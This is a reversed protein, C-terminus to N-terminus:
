SICINSLLISKLSKRHPEAKPRLSPRMQVAFDHYSLDFVPAAAVQAVVAAAAEAFCYDVPLVVCRRCAHVAAPTVAVPRVAARGADAAAVPRPGAADPRSGGDAAPGAPDPGDAAPLEAVPEPGVVAAPGVVAIRGDRVVPGVAALRASDAVGPGFAPVAVVALAAQAVAFEAAAVAAPRGAADNSLQGAVDLHSSCYGGAASM